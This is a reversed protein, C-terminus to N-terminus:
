IGKGFPEWYLESDLLNHWGDTEEKIHLVCFIGHGNGEYDRLEHTALRNCLRGNNLRHFCLGNEYTHWDNGRIM